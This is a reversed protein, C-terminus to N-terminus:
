ATGAATTPADEGGSGTCSARRGTENQRMWPQIVSIERQQLSGRPPGTVLNELVIRRAANRARRTGSGACSGLGSADDILRGVLLVRVTGVGPRMPLVLLKGAVMAM